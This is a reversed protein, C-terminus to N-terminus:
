SIPCVAYTTAKREGVRLVGAAVLTDLVRRVPNDKGLTVARYVGAKLLAGLADQAAKLTADSVPRGRAVGDGVVLATLPLLSVALAGVDFSSASAERFHRCAREVIPATHGAASVLLESAEEGGIGVVAGVGLERVTERNRAAVEVRVLDDRKVYVKVEPAQGLTEAYSIGAGRTRPYHHISWRAADPHPTAALTALAVRPRDHPLDLCTEFSRFSLREERCAWGEPFAGAIITAVNDVVGAILATQVPYLAEARDETPGIVNDAGNLAKAETRADPLAHRLLRMGNLVIESRPLLRAIGGALHVVLTVDATAGPAKPVPVRLKWTRTGGNSMSRERVLGLRHLNHGVEDLAGNPVGEFVASLGFVVKDFLVASSPARPVLGRGKQPPHSPM